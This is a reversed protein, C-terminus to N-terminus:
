EYQRTGNNHVKFPRSFCKGHIFPYNQKIYERKSKTGVTTFITLGYYKALNIAAQGIGGTGAHILISQGARVKAM